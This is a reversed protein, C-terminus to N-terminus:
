DLKILKQGGMYGQLAEPVEIGEEAQNNEIIITMLRQTAILTSNLTHATQNDSDQRRIRTKLKTGQYETCNSCSVVEGYEELSPRWAEIDYKKAPTDGLDGTCVNVVRYPLNLDKM